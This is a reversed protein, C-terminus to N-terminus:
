STQEKPLVLSKLEAVISFCECIDLQKSRGDDKHDLLYEVKRLNSLTNSSECEYRALVRGFLLYQESVILNVASQPHYIFSNTRFNKFSPNLLVFAHESTLGLWMSISILFLEDLLIVQKRM